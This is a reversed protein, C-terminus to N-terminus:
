EAKKKGVIIKSILSIIVAIGAGVLAGIIIPMFDFEKTKDVKKFDKITFSNIMDKISKNELNNKGRVTVTITYLEDGSQMVYQDAYMVEEKVMYKTLIHFCKYKNKTFETIEKVEIGEVKILELIEEVEEITIDYTKLMENKFEERISKEFNEELEKALKELEENSYKIKEGKANTIQINISEGEINLFVNSAVEYFGDAVDLSYKSSEYAFVFNSLLLSFLIISLIIKIKKM